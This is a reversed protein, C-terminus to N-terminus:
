LISLADKDILHIKGSQGLVAESNKHLNNSINRLELIQDNIFKKEASDEIDILLQDPIQFKIEIFDGAETKYSKILKELTLLVKKLNKVPEGAIENDSINRVTSILNATHSSFLHNFVIFKNLGKTDKQKSKPETIMRQFASAMNATAIYVEKRALKYDTETLNRIIVTELIKTFYNYNAVLLKQMYDQIKHKEWSPFIIYSSIFALGSGIFTAFIREQAVEMTDQGLFSFLILLYPTMFMVSIIYNIRILSYTLVMFILLMVFRASPDKVWILIIIGAIGGVITGILRQFNREKTLSWGPKLIVLITLLIWHVHNQFDFLYSVIYGIVLIIALRLSHRFTNSKFSLNNRFSRLDFVDHSIFKSIDGINRKTDIEKNQFYSYLIQVRSSISRVNILIKKLVFTTENSEETTQDILKKLNELDNQLNFLSKPRRNAGLSYGFNDLENALRILTIRIENFADTEGFKSRIENYNYQTAMTKEFLDLIDSFILILIRGISTSDKVIMKSKFLIERLSDLHTNIKIQQDILKNFSKDTDSKLDYFEAKIRIFTAIERIGEALEQQALRYPMFQSLSLSLLTYWACGITVFLSYEIFNNESGTEIISLFVMILTSTGVAAARTGWTSFMGFIFGFILLELGILIPYRNLLQTILTSVFFLFLTALLANRRHSVPGPTDPISSILAGLSIAIGISLDGFYYGIVAPIIAGFSIRLGNAFDQGYLFHLIDQTKVM